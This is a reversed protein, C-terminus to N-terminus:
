LYRLEGSTKGFFQLGLLRVSNAFKAAKIRVHSFSSCEGVIKTM